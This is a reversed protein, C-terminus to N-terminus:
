HQLYGCTHSHLPPVPRYVPHAPHHPYAMHPLAASSDAETDIGAARFFGGELSGKGMHRQGFALPKGVVTLLRVAVLSAGAKGITSNYPLYLCFKPLVFYQMKRLIYNYHFYYSTSVAGLMNYMRPPMSQKTGKQLVGIIFSGSVIFAYTSRTM